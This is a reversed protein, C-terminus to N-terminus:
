GCCGGCCSGSVKELEAVFGAAAVSDRLHEPTTKAEDFGVRARTTALTIQVSSVGQVAEIARAVDIAIAESRMAPVTLMATQM